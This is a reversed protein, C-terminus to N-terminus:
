TPLLAKGPAPTPEAVARSQVVGSRVVGPFEPMSLAQGLEEVVVADERRDDSSARRRRGGPRLRAARKGTQESAFPGKQFAAWRDALISLLTSDSIGNIGGGEGLAGNQFQIAVTKVIEGSPGYVAILIVM